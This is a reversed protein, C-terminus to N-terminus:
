CGIGSTHTYSMSQGILPLCIYGDMKNNTFYMNNLDIDEWYLVTGPQYTADVCQLSKDCIIMGTKSHGQAISFCENTDPRWGCTSMAGTVCEPHKKADACPNPGLDPIVLGTPNYKVPYNAIDDTPNGECGAVVLVLITALLTKM